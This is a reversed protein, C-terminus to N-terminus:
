TQMKLIHSDEIDVQTVFRSGATKKGGAEWARPVGWLLLMM